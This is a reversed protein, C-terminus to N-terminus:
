GEPEAVSLLNQVYSVPALFGRVRGCIECRHYDRVPFKAKIASKNRLALRSM